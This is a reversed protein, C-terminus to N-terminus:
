KEISSVVEDLSSLEYIQIAKFWYYYAELSIKKITKFNKRFMPHTITLNTIDSRPNYFEIDDINNKILMALYASKSSCLVAEEINFNGSFIYNKIRKIGTELKTFVERDVSGRFAIIVSTDFIDNLVDIYNYNSMNRYVLEQEAIKIFTNNVVKINDCNDFLNSVDFLQKIIELEKDKDYPIGTTNPSFATLKDGLICNVSPVKVKIVEGDNILFESILEKEIIEDYHNKEFLIDLM